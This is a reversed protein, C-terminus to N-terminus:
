VTLRVEGERARMGTLPITFFFTTGKNEETEFWVKGGWGEVLSKVLSLGLGSGEPVLKLANEARFFKEFIRSQQEKPIGIGTDKVSYEIMTGKQIISVYITSNEPGYRNANSLMNQICQWIVEQDAPIVPLPDPQCTVEVKQKKNELGTRLTLIVGQTTSKLDLPVPEVKLRGAEVRAIQLLLNVLAIMRDTGQYVREVFHKQEETIPGADGNILMEAFWRMSTLPTRLQHSAVSIFGTKAEDLQKERNIDRIVVVVGITAGDKALPAAQIAVNIKKGGLTQLSVNDEIGYTFLKGTQLVIKTPREDIPIEIGNQFVKLVDDINKYKFITDRSLGTMHEFATNFMVFNRDKDVVFLAENMSALVAQLNSKESALKEELLRADELVALMAKKTDELTKNQENAVSFRKELVKTQDQLKGYSERLKRAMTSFSLALEGVEGSMQLNMDTDLNGQTFRIVANQLRLIPQVISRYLLVAALVVIVAFVGALLLGLRYTQYTVGDLGDAYTNVLNIETERATILVTELNTAAGDFAALKEQLEEASQEENIVRVVELIAQKLLSKSEQVKSGVQRLNAEAQSDQRVLRQYELEAQDLIPIGQLLNDKIESLPQNPIDRDHIVRGLAVSVGSIELIARLRPLGHAEIKVIYDDVNRTGHLIVLASALVFFSIILFVLFIRIKINNSKLIPSM